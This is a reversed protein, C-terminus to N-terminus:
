SEGAQRRLVKVAWHNALGYELAAAADGHQKAFNLIVAPTITQGVARVGATAQLGDLAVQEIQELQARLSERRKAVERKVDAALTLLEDTDLTEVDIFEGAM